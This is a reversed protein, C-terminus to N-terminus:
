HFVKLKEGNLTTNATPTDYIATTINPYTRELGLRNLTSIMFPHQRNALVDISSIIHYKDKM